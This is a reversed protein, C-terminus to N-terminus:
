STLYNIRHAQYYALTKALGERLNIQPQWGTIDSFASYDGYYDGIDILKKDEPFPVLQYTVDTLTALTQAFNLLGYRDRSGLNFVHGFCQDHLLSLVLAQVVDDVYNFDRVQM